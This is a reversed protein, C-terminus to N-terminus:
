RRSARWLLLGALSSFAAPPIWGAAWPPLLGSDGLSECLRLTGYYLFAISVSLGFSLAPTPSKLQMALSAGIVGVIFIALPFTLKIYLDVRYPDLERGQEAVRDVYRRLDFYGLEEPDSPLSTFAEPPEASTLRLSSRAVQLESGDALFTREVVGRLEWADDAWQGVRADVRRLLRGDDYEYISVGHMRREAVLYTRVVYVRGDRGRLALDNRQTEPAPPLGEIEQRLIRERRATADPVVLEGLVFSAGSALIAVSLIPLSLRVLSVGSTVIASLENFRAMQGLTLFTALLFAVPLMMVLIYPVKWAFYRLVPGIEAGHDLFRNLKEIFDILLFLSVFALLSFALAKLFEGLVYRDLTSM